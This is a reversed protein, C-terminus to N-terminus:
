KELIKTKSSAQNLNYEEVMRRAEEDGFQKLPSKM